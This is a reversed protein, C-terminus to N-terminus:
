VARREGSSRVASTASMGAMPASPSPPAAAKTPSTGTPSPTPSTPTPTPTPSTSSTSSATPSTTASPTVTPTPSVSTPAASPSITVSPSASAGASSQPGSIISGLPGPGGGSGSPLHFPNETQPPATAGAVLIAAAIGGVALLGGVTVALPAGVRAVRERMWESRRRRELQASLETHQNLWAMVPATAYVTGQWAFLSALLPGARDSVVVAVGAGWLACALFGETRATWLATLANPRDGVKPTRLFVGERRVLGNLCALAVTWSMSLWNAFALLARRLGIGSRARLAWVARLLGSAILAIPLIATAGLLPRLALRGGLVLGVAVSLLVISFGLLVLDNLWQLGGLLYDVRQAPGLHNSPDRNWPLLDRWHMRLIQMGGFCWRFRQSKLSAFSLRMIGRGFSRGVFLGAYGERLIRLSAEADETICWEDWGGVKELVDRRLLGMTGAFIISNRRNRAPMTTLFFYRYADYCATLYADGAYERYDQPTQLFALDPDVFYGVVGRLYAPAVLYDADIVGILEAAVDTHERLALNLAGSKYGPWPDVHVFRVNSQTECYDAVPGWVAPDKTNNDIVVIEMRPYDIAQVSRITEILMDPPENYAAIQLSVMPVYAPDFPANPEDPRIACIVDLSEFAFSASLTLAVVELVLLLGSAVAGPVTLYGGFTVMLGFALYALSAALASGAFLHAVVNWRPRLIVLCGITVALLVEADWVPGTPLRWIRAAVEGAALVFSAGILLSVIRSAFPVSRGISLLLLTSTALAGVCVVFVALLV